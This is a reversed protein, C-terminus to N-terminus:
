RPCATRGRDARGSSRRRRPEHAESAAGCVLPSASRRDPRATSADAAVCRRRRSRVCACRQAIRIRSGAGRDGGGSAAGAILDEIPMLKRLHMWRLLAMELHYRPQAAARIDAEARTLLDFARLLDERSFRAVLAKLRDREGEGAIEPDSIRSPDVSLVLLDRVVRSLERCVARLDYGMEVARAVLAFSAPADEDAVAQLTDLLLDRGVLGLVVAVDEATITGGTFAIVQDLKSQADRMSGEADRAILQLSDEGVEIREADMILRLQAAIAKTSITRFEYVQSRSLVTEPIKELETTAMM